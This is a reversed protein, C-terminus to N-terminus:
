LRNGANSPRNEKNLGRTEPRITSFNALRRNNGSDSLCIWEAALGKAALNLMGHLFTIGGVKDTPPSSFRPKHSYTGSGMICWALGPQCSSAEAGEWSTIGYEQFLQVQVGSKDM